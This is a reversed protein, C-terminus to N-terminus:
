HVRPQKHLIVKLERRAVDRSSILVFEFERALNFERAPHSVKILGSCFQYMLAVKSVDVCADVILVAGQVARQTEKVVYDAKGATPDEIGVGRPHQAVAMGARKDSHQEARAYCAVDSMDSLEANCRSMAPMAKASYEQTVADTMKCTCTKGRDGERDGLGIMLRDLQVFIEAEEGAV